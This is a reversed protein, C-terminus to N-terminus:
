EDVEGTECSDCEFFEGPYCEGYIDCKEYGFEDIYNYDIGM